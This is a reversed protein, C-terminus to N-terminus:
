KVEKVKVKIYDRGYERSLNDLGFKLTELLKQTSTDHDSLLEFYLRGDEKEISCEEKNLETIANVTNVTLVSVAACVIDNGYSAYMAHGKAEFGTYSGSRKFFTVSTM